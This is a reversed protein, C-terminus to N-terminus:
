YSNKNQNPTTGFEIKLLLRYTLQAGNDTLIHHIKYPFNDIVIRLFKTSNDM